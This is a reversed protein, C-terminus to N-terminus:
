RKQISLRYEGAPEGGPGAEVLQLRYSGTPLWDRWLTVTVNGEADQTLGDVQEVRDDEAALFRLVLRDIAPEEVLVLRVIGLRAQSGFDLTAEGGGRLAGVPLATAIAVTAQPERFSDLASRAAALEGRLSHLRLGVGGLTTGLVLVLTALAAMAWRRRFPAWGRGSRKEDAAGLGSVRSFRRWAAELEPDEEQLRGRLDLVVRACSACEVLHDRVQVEDGDARGAAFTALLDASPHEHEQM